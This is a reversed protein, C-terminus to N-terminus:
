RKGTRWQSVAHQLEVSTYEKKMDELVGAWSCSIPRHIRPSRRELLYTVFDEVEVQLAPPLARIKEEITM